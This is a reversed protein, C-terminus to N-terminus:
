DKVRQILERSQDVSWGTSQLEILMSRESDGDAHASRIWDLASEIDASAIGEFVDVAVVARRAVAPKTSRTTRRKPLPAPTEALSMSMPAPDFTTPVPSRPQSNVPNTMPTRNPPNAHQPASRQPPATTPGSSPVITPGTSPGAMPGNTPGRVQTSSRPAPEPTRRPNRDLFSLPAEDEEDEDEEYDDGYWDEEDDERARLRLVVIVLVVILVGGGAAGLTVPSLPLSAFLGDDSVVEEPPCGPALGMSPGQAENPCQDFADFIGDGDTDRQAASCGRDDVEVGIPTGPCADSANGNAEDGYGDSDEDSWQTSEDPLADILDAWGDQDRDICGFVTAENSSGPVEPCDDAGTASQNDGFGDGDVDSWQRADAPFADGTQNERLGTTSNLDFRYLDDYGDGDSDVGARTCGTADIAAGFPTDDCADLVDPIGDGDVDREAEGCGDEGVTIDPPSSPCADDLNPVGDEDDDERAQAETCGRSDVTTGTPSGECADRRDNIGDGDSDLQDSSCGEADVVAGPATGACRDDENQVGDADADDVLVLPCGIGQTGDLVGPTLPCVDAQFGSVNDGFGDGDGDSYQTPDLPFADHTNAWLDGDADPCGRVPLRSTGFTGVCADLFLGDDNTENRFETWADVAGDEDADTAAAIRDPFRDPLTAGASGNDGFGDGDTDMWQTPDEPWADAGEEVTWALVGQGSPDSSGDGDTDLCGNRDRFSFGTVGPCQDGTVSDTGNDGWGDGDLDEWQRVNLPFLDGQATEFETNCCDPGHNDGLGDGDSDLAQKWNTPFRDGRVWLGDNDSWGDQDADYCGYRDFHSGGHNTPCADLANSWGDGDGDECGPQIYRSLGSTSPCADPFPGDPNDGRGDGDSDSWQEGIRSFADYEDPIHDGDTDQLFRYLLLDQNAADRVALRLTGRGADVHVGVDPGISEILTRTSAGNWNSEGAHLLLGGNTARVMIPHTADGAHLLTGDLHRVEDGGLLTTGSGNAHAVRGDELLQVRPSVIPGSDFGLGMSWNHLDMTTAQGGVGSAHQWALTLESGNSRISVDTTSTAVISTPHLALYTGNWVLATLLDTGNIDWVSAIALDGGHITTDFATSVASGSMGLMSTVWGSVETSLHLSADAPTRHLVLTSGNVASEVKASADLTTSSAIMSTSWGTDSEISAWLQQQDPATFAIRSRDDDGVTLDLHHGYNGSTLVARTLVTHEMLEYASLSGQDVIFTRLHGSASMVADVTGSSAHDSLSSSISSWGGSTPDRGKVLLADEARGAHQIRHFIRPDGDNGTVVDLTTVERDIELTVDEWDQEAYVEVIVSTGGNPRRIVHFEHRGDADRDGGSGISTGISEGSADGQVITEGSPSLGDPGGHHLQIRGAGSNMPSGIMVDDFGDEDVDGAPEILSGLRMSSGTGALTSDPTSNLTSGGHFVWVRGGQYVQTSNLPEGILIEDDGDGDVDGGFAVEAGFLRGQATSQLVHHPQTSLGDPGGAHVQVGGLGSPATPLNAVGIILDAYGDGNWDGQGAISRGFVPGIVAPEISDGMMPGDASGMLLTLSGEIVTGGMTRSTGNSRLIADEFGDQNVDGLAVVADGLGETSNGPLNWTITPDPGNRSGSHVKVSGNGSDAAPDGLLLDDFGDGDVDAVDFSADRGPLSTVQFQMPTASGSLHVTISGGDHGIVVDESGDGDLDGDSIVRLGSCGTCVAETTVPVSEIRGQQREALSRIMRIHTDSGDQVTLVTQENGSLDLGMGVLGTLGQDRALVRHDTGNEDFRILRAEGTANRIYLLHFVGERDLKFALDDSVPGADLVRDTWWRGNFAVEHLANSGDVWILHERLELDVELDISRVHVNEIITRVHFRDVTGLSPNGSAFRGIRLNMDHDSGGDVFALHIRDDYGIAISCDPAQDPLSSIDVVDITSRISLDHDLLAVKLRIPATGEYWCLVPRDLVDLAVGLGRMNGDGLSAVADSRDVPMLVPDPEVDWATGNITVSSGSWSAGSPGTTPIMNAHVDDALVGIGSGHMAWPGTLMLLLVLM